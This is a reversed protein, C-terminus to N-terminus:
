EFGEREVFFVTMVHNLFVLHHDDILIGSANHGTTAPAISQVLCDFGFFPDGQFLFIFRVRGNSNLIIEAHVLLQRAHRTCGFGFGSFEMFDITERHYGDGSM